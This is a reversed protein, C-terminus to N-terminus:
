AVANSVESDLVSNALITSLRAAWKRQGAEDAIEDNRIEIMACPLGRSRAHRELTFYVRDAPSYPENVGVVLGDEARLADLLRDALRRDQDFLIGIEWPRSRGNYVATFSHIAVLATPMRDALRRGILAEIATHYPEHITRIRRSREAEGLGENGPVATAESRTPILDTADTARNLDIVLRSVGGAVLPADLTEALRRAVPLAGPDWAIHALREAEGLGLGAYAPPIFNSAHDCLIVFDGSGGANEVTVVPDDGAESRVSQPL